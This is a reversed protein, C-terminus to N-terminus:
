LIYVSVVKTVIIYLMNMAVGGDYDEFEGNKVV